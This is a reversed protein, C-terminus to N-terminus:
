RKSSDLWQRLMQEQRGHYEELLSEFRQALQTRLTSETQSSGTAEELWRQLQLMATKHQQLMKEASASADAARANGDQVADHQISLQMRLSEILNQMQERAQDAINRCSAAVLGQTQQLFGKQQTAQDQLLQVVQGQGQMSAIMQAAIREIGQANGTQMTAYQASLEMHLSEVLHQMQEQAQAAINQASAAVLDQTQQLFKEQLANQAQLLQAVQGQSHLAIGLHSTLREIGEQQRLAIEHLREDAETRQGLVTTLAVMSADSHSLRATLSGLSTVLERVRRESQDLAISMLKFAPTQEALDNLAAQLPDLDLDFGGGHEGHSSFDTALSAKSRVMTNLESACGKVSVLLVGMVLSGLVGFLSASFAVGMAQMPATLRTVLEQIMSVPDTNSVAGGFAGILKGIESLAGLLGIFTGLLGMGVMLGGMFQALLLRRAQKAEFRTLEHELADHQVSTIPKGILGQLMDLVPLVDERANLLIRQAEKPTVGKKLANFFVQVLKGERNIRFVHGMMMASGAIMLGFIIYNIEPHPNGRVTSMIADFFVISGLVLLGIPVGVYAYYPKLKNM